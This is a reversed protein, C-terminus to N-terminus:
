PPAMNALLEDEAEVASAVLETPCIRVGVDELDIAHKIPVVVILVMIVLGADSCVNRLGAARHRRCRPSSLDLVPIRFRFVRGDAGGEVHM